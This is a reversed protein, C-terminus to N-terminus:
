EEQKERPHLLWSKHPYVDGKRVGGLGQSIEKVKGGEERNESLGYRRSERGYRVQGDTTKLSRTAASRNAGDVVITDMSGWQRCRQETYFSGALEERM